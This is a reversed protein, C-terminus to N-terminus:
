IGVATKFNNAPWPVPCISLVAVIHEGKPLFTTLHIIHTTKVHFVFSTSVVHM